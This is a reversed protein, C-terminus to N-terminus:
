DRTQAAVSLSAPFAGRSGKRRRWITGALKFARGRAANTRRRHAQPGRRLRQRLARELSPEHEPLPPSLQVRHSRTSSWLLTSPALRHPRLTLRWRRTRSYSRAQILERPRYFPSSAVCRELPPSPTGRVDISSKSPLSLPSPASTAASTPRVHKPAATLPVFHSTSWCGVSPISREREEWRVAAEASGCAPGAPINEDIM